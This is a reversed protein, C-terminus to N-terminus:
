VEPIQGIDTAQYFEGLAAAFALAARSAIEDWRAHEERDTSTPRRTRAARWALYPMEARIEFCVSTVPVEM